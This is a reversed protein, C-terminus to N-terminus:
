IAASTGYRPGAKLKSYREAASMMRPLNGFSARAPFITSTPVEAGPNNSKRAADLVLAFGTSPEEGRANLEDALFQFTKLGVEGVTAGAGSLPDIYAIKITDQAVAVSATAMFASLALSAVRLGTPSSRGAIYAM